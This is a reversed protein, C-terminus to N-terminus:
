KLASAAHVRGINFLCGAVFESMEGPLHQIIHLAKTYAEFALKFDAMKHYVLGMGNYITALNQDYPPLIRELIDLGKKYWKLSEELDDKEDTL